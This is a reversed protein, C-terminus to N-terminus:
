ARVGVAKREFVYEGDPSVDVLVTDGEVFEGALIRKSLPNEV